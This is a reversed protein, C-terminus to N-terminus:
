KLIWGFYRFTLFALVAGYPLAWGWKEETFHHAFRDVLLLIIAIVMLFHIAMVDLAEQRAVQLFNTFDQM